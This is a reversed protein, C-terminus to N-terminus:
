WSMDRQIGYEWVWQVEWIRVVGDEDGAVLVKGGEAAKRSVLQIVSVPADLRDSGAGEESPIQDNLIDEFAM